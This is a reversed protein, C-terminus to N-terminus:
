TSGILKLRVDSSCNTDRERDPMDNTDQLLLGPHGFNVIFIALAIMAGDFVNFLWQTSIISGSFGNKLKITRYIARAFLCLTNLAIAVLLLKRRPTLVGRTTSTDGRSPVPRNATYRVIFEAALCVYVTISVLNDPNKKKGVAISALAGGVAQVVLAVLDCGLFVMSYIKPPVRSYRSGLVDIVKGLTLFNAALLPTPGIIMATMTRIEYPLLKQPSKSSKLRSLWGVIELIGCLAATPLMYWTRYIIAQVIHLFTSIGFLSVFTICIWRTPTYHYPNHVTGAAAGSHTM